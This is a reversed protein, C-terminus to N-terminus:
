DETLHNLHSEYNSLFLFECLKEEIVFQRSVEITRIRGRCVSLETLIAQQKQFIAEFAMENKIIEPSDANCDPEYKRVIEDLALGLSSATFIELLLQSAIMFSSKGTVLSGWDSLSSASGYNQAFLVAWGAAVVGTAAFVAFTYKRRTSDLDFLQNIRELALSVLAPVSAMLVALTPNTLFAVDGSGMIATYANAFGIGLSTLLAVILIPISVKDKTHLQGWLSPQDSSVTKRYRSTGDKRTRAEDIPKNLAEYEKELASERMQLETLEQIHERDFQTGAHERVVQIALERDGCMRMKHIFPDGQTKSPLSTGVKNAQVLSQGVEPKLKRRSM